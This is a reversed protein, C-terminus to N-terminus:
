SRRTGHSQPPAASLIVDSVYRIAAARAADDRCSHDIVYLLADILFTTATATVTRADQYPNAHEIGACLSIALDSPKMKM